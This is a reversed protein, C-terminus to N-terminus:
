INQFFPDDGLPKKFVKKSPPVQKSIVLSFVRPTTKAVAATVLEQQSKQQVIQRNAVEQASLAASTSQKNLIVQNQLASIQKQLATISATQNRQQQTAQNKYVIITVADSTVILLLLLLFPIYKKM